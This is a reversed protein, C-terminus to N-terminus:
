PQRIWKLRAIRIGNLKPHNLAAIYWQGEFQFIEPACVALSGVRWRDDDVGFSMPNPSAYITTLDKAGYNQTLFLYFLGDKQVVFPCEAAGGWWLAQKAAIGGGAVMMSESWNRLDSSTRVYAAAEPTAGKKHACYYGYYLEGTKIVMPDRTNDNPGSFLDPQGRDNLLRTFTKGDASTAHCIRNWDGYFMHYVGQEKFVYPAQLGGPEEGLTTDAQMAIGMPKWHSDTIRKGEWRHLLRQKGELKTGRICSWIQWTGDAAQWIGFDVPEQKEGTLAGLDPNGAVPWWEGDIQPMLPAEAQTPALGAALAVIVLSITKQLRRLSRSTQSSAHM